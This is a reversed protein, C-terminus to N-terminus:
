RYLMYSDKKGEKRGEKKRGKMKKKTKPSLTERAPRSSLSGGTDAEWTRPNFDNM